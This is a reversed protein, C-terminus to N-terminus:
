VEIAMKTSVLLVKHKGIGVAGRSCRLQLPTGDSPRGSCGCQSSCIAMASWCLDETGGMVDVWVRARLVGVTVSRELLLIHHLKDSRLWRCSPTPSKQRGPM